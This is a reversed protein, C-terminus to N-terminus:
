PRNDMDIFAPFSGPRFRRARVATLWFVATLTTYTAAIKRLVISVVMTLTVSGAMPRANEIGDVDTPVIEIEYRTLKATKMGADPHSPSRYPPLRTRSVATVTNVTADARHPIADFRPWSTAKLIRWPAPPPRRAGTPMAISSRIKRGSSRTRASETRVM